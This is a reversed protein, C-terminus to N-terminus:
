VQDAASCLAPRCFTAAAAYQFATLMHFLSKSVSDMFYNDYLLLGPEFLQNCPEIGHILCLEIHFMHSSIKLIVLILM